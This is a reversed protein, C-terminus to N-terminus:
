TPRNGIQTCFEPGVWGPYNGNANCYGDTPEYGDECFGGDGTPFNGTEWCDGGDSVPHDGSVCDGSSPHNGSQCEWGPYNGSPNCDEVQPYEGTSRCGGGVYIPTDGTDCYAYAPGEGVPTCADWAQAKQPRVLMAALAGAGVAFFRRRQMRDDNSKPEEDPDIERRRRRGFEEVLPPSYIDSKAEVMDKEQEEGETGLCGRESLARLFVRFDERISDRISAELHPWMREFIEKETAPGDSLERLLQTAMQNVPHLADNDANFVFGTGDDETRFTCNPLVKWKKGM